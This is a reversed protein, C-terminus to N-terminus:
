NDDEIVEHIPMGESEIIDELCLGDKPYFEEISSRKIPYKIYWNEVRFTKYDYNEGKFYKDKKEKKTGLYKGQFIFTSGLINHNIEKPVNGVVIVEEWKKNDSKNFLVGDKGIVVCDCEATGGTIYECYIETTNNDLPEKSGEVTTVEKTVRQVSVTVAFIEFAILLVIISLLTKIIIRKM